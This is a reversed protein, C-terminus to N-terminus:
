GIPTRASEEQALAEEAQSKLTINGVFVNDCEYEYLPKKTDDDSSCGFALMATAALLFLKKMPNTKTPQLCIYRKQGFTKFTM